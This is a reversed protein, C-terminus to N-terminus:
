KLTNTKTDFFLNSNKFNLKRFKSLFEKSLFNTEIMELPIIFLENPETATGSVGIAIFVTMKKEDAFKKYNQLQRESCWEIGNKYYDTRYKCEVAFDISTDNCNYKMKLDPQLTTEAFKGRVFKDGAWEVITFFRRSFKEVIYKEFNDGKEKDKDIINTEKEHQRLELLENIKSSYDDYNLGLETAKEQLLKQENNTLQGDATAMTILSNLIEVKFKETDEREKNKDIINTEKNHQKSKLLENIKSSFDDYNLGLEKAKQKLLKQENNTLQGDATAMSILSNLIEIKSHESNESKFTIESIQIKKSKAKKILFIGVIMLFFGIILVTIEMAM